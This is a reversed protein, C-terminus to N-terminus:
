LGLKDLTEATPFADEWGRAGYYEPLMLDLKSIMGESPGNSIPEELLRKPLTDSSAEMGAEKNFLRELNYIREGIAVLEDGDVEFGTAASYLAAYEPAGMAFSSFLCLGLSDIAATLDQFVKVLGAKGETVTRDAQVPLGLIEPSITYGRVHCGGRNSTAYNLGIGQIARADYAPLEQRKTAMSYEPAGYHECLVASGDAMLKALPSEPRGMRKTWEVIAEVSGWVLPVGDCDDETIIGRQYLEMAAAITCPVGIADLGLENCLHNAETIAKLDKVGCDAGYAWLPEYEPGGVKADNVTVVRGCGIPCKHCYSNSVYYDKEILAEGSTEEADEFYSEQWNKTPLAGISNIINVLIATGYTPLGASTVENGKIKEMAAKFAAMMAEKDAPSLTKVKAEVVIAKLNKSGMVAGMGGRGAARDSDNMVCSLLSQAEGGPGICLVNADAGYREKLKADCAFSDLGWLDGADRIEAGDEHVYLYVPKDAKGVVYLADLGAYKLKAGWTGGSNASGILNNLPAKAVVMYRGATPSQSGTLPGAIFVLPAEPSLPDMKAAGADYLWKTALGRGGIFKRAEDQDIEQKEIAGQSLDIHLRQYHNTTTM